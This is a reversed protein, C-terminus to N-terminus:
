RPDLTLVFDRINQTEVESFAESGPYTDSCPLPSTGSAGWHWDFNRNPDSGLCTSGANM